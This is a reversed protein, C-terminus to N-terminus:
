VQIKKYGRNKMKREGKTGKTYTHIIKLKVIARQTTKITKPPDHSSNYQIARPKVIYM